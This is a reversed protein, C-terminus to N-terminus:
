IERDGTFAHVCAPMAAHVGIANFSVKTAMAYIMKFFIQQWAFSSDFRTKDTM